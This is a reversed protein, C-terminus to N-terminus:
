HVAGSSRIPRIGPRPLEDHGSVAGAGPGVFGRFMGRAAIAFAKSPPYHRMFIRHGESQAAGFRAPQPRANPPRHSSRTRKPSRYSSRGLRAGAPAPPPKGRISSVLIALREPRSSDTITWANPPPWSGNRCSSMLIIAASDSRKSPASSRRVRPTPASRARRVANHDTFPVLRDSPASALETFSMM